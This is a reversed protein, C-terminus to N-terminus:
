KRKPLNVVTAALREGAVGATVFDTWKELAIRKERVYTALNYTGSVGRRHGTHALIAEVIHPQVGLQDHMVTSATRRLDHLTWAPM